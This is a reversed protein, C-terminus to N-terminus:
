PLVVNLRYDHRLSEIDGHHKIGVRVSGLKTLRPPSSSSTQRVEYIQGDPSPDAAARHHIALKSVPQHMGLHTVQSNRVIREFIRIRTPALIVSVAQFSQRASWRHLGTPTRRSSLQPRRM